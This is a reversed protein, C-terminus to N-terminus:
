TRQHLPQVLQNVQAFGLVGEGRKQARLLLARQADNLHDPMASYAFASAPIQVSEPRDSPATMNYREYAVQVQYQASKLENLAKRAQLRHQVVSDDERLLNEMQVPTLSHIVSFLRELLNKESKKIMCHVIAKPVTICVTDCVMRTYVSMDTGFQELLMDYQVEFPTVTTTPNKLKDAMRMPNLLVQPAPRLRGQADRVDEARFLSAGEGLHTDL